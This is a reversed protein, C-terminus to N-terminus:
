TLRRNTSDAAHRPSLMQFHAGGDSWFLSVHEIRTNSLLATAGMIYGERPARGRGDVTVSAAAGSKKLATTMYYLTLTGTATPIATIFFDGSAADCRVGEPTLPNGGLDGRFYLAREPFLTCSRQTAPSTPSFCRVQFTYRENTYGPNLEANQISCSNGDWPDPLLPRPSIPPSACGHTAGQLSHTTAM